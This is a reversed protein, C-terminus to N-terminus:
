QTGPKPFNCPPHKRNCFLKSSYNHNGCRPCTWDGPKWTARPCWTFKCEKRYWFNHNGCESCFWDGPLWVQQLQRRVGCGDGTCFLEKGPNLTNCETCQWVGGPPVDPSPSRSRSRPRASAPVDPSGGPQSSSTSTENTNHNKSTAGRPHPVQFCVVDPLCLPDGPNGQSSVM